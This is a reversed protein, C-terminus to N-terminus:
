PGLSLAIRWASSAVSAATLAVVAVTSMRHARRQARRAVVVTACVLLFAAVLRAHPVLPRSARWVKAMRANPGYVWLTWLTTPGRACRYGHLDRHPDHAYLLDAGENSWEPGHFGNAPTYGSRAIICRGVANTAGELVLVRDTVEGRNWGSSSYTHDLLPLAGLMRRCKRDRTVMFVSPRNGPNECSAPSPEGIVERWSRYGVLPEASGEFRWSEETFQSSIRGQTSAEFRLTGVLAIWAIAVCGGGLAGPRVTTDM